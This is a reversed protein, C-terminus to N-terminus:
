TIAKTPLDPLPFDVKKLANVPNTGDFVPFIKILSKSLLSGLAALDTFSPSM